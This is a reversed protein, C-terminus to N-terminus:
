SKATEDEEEGPAAERQAWAGQVPEEEKEEEPAAERQAPSAGPGGAEPEGRGSSMVREANAEAAQEFTDSPHSVSIGDGTPTGSVPGNRQQVVHTLEHALTRQGSASGPQYQGPGFVIEEGVTYARAQVATASAAAKTGTHVRVNSLDTGFTQEMRGRTGSDLPEGGGRGVVELVPSTTGATGEDGLLQTVADNGVTRQLEVVAEPSAKRQAVLAAHDAFSGAPSPAPAEHGEARAKNEHLRM